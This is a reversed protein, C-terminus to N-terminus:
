GDVDGRARRFEYKKHRYLLKANVSEVRARAFDCGGGPTLGEHSMFLSMIVDISMSVEGEAEAQRQSM